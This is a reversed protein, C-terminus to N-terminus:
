DGYIRGHLKLICHRCTSFEGPQIPEHDCDSAEEPEAEIYDKVRRSGGTHTKTARKMTILNRGPAVRSTRSEEIEFKVMKPNEKKLNEIYEDVIQDEMIEQSTKDHEYQHIESDSDQNVKTQELSHHEAIDHPLHVLSHNM